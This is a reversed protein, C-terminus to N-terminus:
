EYSVRPDAIVYLIDALLYAALTLLMVILTNSLFLERDRQEVAELSLRGMGNIGFVTEVIISGTIMAPLLSVLVTILPILSNRFAHAWLVARENVGKARATRVFDSQITDLLSARSLKHLFAVNVYAICLVPLILHWGFDLLWGRHFGSDPWNPLFAMSDARVDSLGNTPFWHLYRDSAFFGIVLVTVWIQPLSWMALSTTGSVIDVTKGRHRAAWVGTLVALVYEIPIAIINLLVTIPLATSILASVKRGRTFSDGLDPTKLGPKNFRVDGAEPPIVIRKMLEDEARAETMGEDLLKPRLEARLRNAETLSRQVEPDDPEWTRFGVPSVKNLWRLYQVILPKNLGYRANLYAARARRQEPRMNGEASLTDASIGGPAAAVVFFVLMTAGILTPIMLLARRLLYTTM